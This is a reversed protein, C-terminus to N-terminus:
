QVTFQINTGFWKLADIKKEILDLCDEDCILLSDKGKLCDSACSEFGNFVYEVPLKNDAAYRRSIMGFVGATCGEPRGTILNTMDDSLNDKMTIIRMSGKQGSVIKSILQSETHPYPTEPLDKMEALGKNIAGKRLAMM